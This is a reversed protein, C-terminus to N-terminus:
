PQKLELEDLGASEAQVVTGQVKAKKFRSFTIAAKQSEGLSEYARALQYYAQTLGPQLQIAEKFERCAKGAHNLHMEVKGLGYHALGYQPDLRTAVLSEQEAELDRGERLLLAGLHFRFRANNPKLAAAKRLCQEALGTKGAIVLTIGKLFWARDFDPQLDIAHDVNAIADEYRRLFYDSVAASYYPGAWTPALRIAQQAVEYATSYRRMRQLIRSELLLYNPNGPSGEIALNVTTQADVLDGLFYDAKARLYDDEIGPGQNLTAVAKAPQGTKMYAEALLRRAERQDPHVLVAQSLFQIADNLMGNKLYLQGVAQLWNAERIFAKFAETGQERARDPHGAKLTARILNFAIDPRGPQLTRARLLWDEAQKAYGSDLLILGLNYSADANSPDIALASRLEREGDKFRDQRLYVVALNYHAKFSHPQIQVARWYDEAAQNLHGQRAEIDGLMEYVDGSHPDLRLIMKLDQEAELLNGNAVAKGAATLLLRAEPSERSDFEATVSSISCGSNPLVLWTFSMILGCVLARRIPALRSPCVSHQFWGRTSLRTM